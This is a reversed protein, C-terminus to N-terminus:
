HTCVSPDFEGLLPEIFMPNIAWPAERSDSHLAACRLEARHRDIVLRLGVADQLFALDGAADGAALVLRKGGAGPRLADASPAGFIIKSVMCRKGELYPILANEGDEVPGCGELNYTYRGEANQLLRVGIVHRADIGILPAVAQVVMQQSASVVWVEFGHEFLAGVLRRMPGYIRLYAPVQRETGVVQLAGVPEGLGESMAAEAFHRVEDPTYGALLQAAWAYQPQMVRPDYSSRTFAPAASTTEGDLYIHVIEDACRHVTATPLSQGPAIADGCALRLAIHAADSLLPSTRRWDIEPPQLIKNNRLMWFLVADGIDNKILTNDWDFVAVPPHASDYLVGGRGYDSIVQALRQANRGTWGEGLDGATMPPAVLADQAEPRSCALSTALVIGIWGRQWNSNSM